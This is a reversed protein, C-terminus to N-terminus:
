MVSDSHWVAATELQAQKVYGKLLRSNNIKEHWKFLAEMLNKKTMEHLKMLRLTSLRFSPPFSVPPFFCSSNISTQM